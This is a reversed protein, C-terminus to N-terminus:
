LTILDPPLFDFRNLYVLSIGRPTLDLRSVACNNLTFWIEQSSSMGLLRALLHNYFGGHTVLGIVDDTEGHRARLSEWVRMVREPREASPEHPREGWWGREGLEEPLQVRPYHTEFHARNPGEVGRKEGTLEDELYLGGSEHAETIAILPIDLVHAITSATAVARDMLSTYLITPPTGEGEPHFDGLPALRGLDHRLFEAVREAQARGRTTLVPDYSRGKDTQKKIWLENNVSQGHRILYLRM